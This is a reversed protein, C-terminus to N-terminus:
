RIIELAFDGIRIVGSSVASPWSDQFVFKFLIINLFSFDNRPM